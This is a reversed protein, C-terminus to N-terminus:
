VVMFFSKLVRDFNPLLKMTKAEKPSIWQYDQAEWDLTIQDTNVEVLVPHVIWTKKYKPAEQHFIKGIKISLIDKKNLGIEEGIEDRVKEEFSRRDDLFGSIGNWYGPYLRMGSSRQVVLIKRGYRVVCNMVPCYRIDTFDVQGPKPVFTREKKM